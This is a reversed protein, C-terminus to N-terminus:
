SNATNGCQSNHPCWLLFCWWWKVFTLVELAMIKSAEPGNSLLESSQQLVLLLKQKATTVSLSKKDCRCWMQTVPLLTSNNYQQQCHTM